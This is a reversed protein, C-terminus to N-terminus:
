NAFAAKLAALNVIKVLLYLKGADLDSLAKGTTPTFIVDLTDAVLYAYGATQTGAKYLIETGNVNIETSSMFRTASGDDGVTFPCALFAADATNQFATELIHAVDLIVDGAALTLAQLTQATSVVSTTLDAHTIEILTNFGGNEATELASLKKVKM